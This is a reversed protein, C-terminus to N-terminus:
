KAHPGNVSLETVRDLWEAPLEGQGLWEVLARGTANGALWQWGGGSGSGSGGDAVAV